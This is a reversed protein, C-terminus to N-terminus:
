EGNGSKGLKSYSNFLRRSLLERGDLAYHILLRMLDRAERLTVPDDFVRATLDLLTQGRVLLAPPREASQGNGSAQDINTLAGAQTPNTSVVFPGEPVRYGYVANKSILEGSAYDHDLLPEYGIQVLLDLEFQRLPPMADLWIM